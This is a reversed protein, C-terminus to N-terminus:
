SVVALQQHGLHSSRTSQVYPGIGGAVVNIQQQFVKKGKQLRGYSVKKILSRQLIAYIEIQLTSASLNKLDLGLVKIRLAGPGKLSQTVRNESVKM